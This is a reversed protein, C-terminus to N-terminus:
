LGAGHRSFMSLEWIQASKDHRLIYVDDNNAIIKFYSHDNALWRDVIERVALNRTGLKFATPVSEGDPGRITDVELIM